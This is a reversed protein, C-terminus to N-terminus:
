SEEKTTVNVSFAADIMANLSTRISSEAKQVCAVFASKDTDEENCLKRTFRGLLNIANRVSTEVKVRMRDYTERTLTRSRVAGIRGFAHGIGSGSGSREMGSDLSAAHEIRINAQESCKKSREEDQIKECRALLVAAIDARGEAHANVVLPPGFFPPPAVNTRGGAGFQVQGQSGFGLAFVPSASFFLLVGSLASLIRTTDM